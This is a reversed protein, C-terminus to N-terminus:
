GEETIVECLCSAFCRGTNLCVLNGLEIKEVFAESIEDFRLGITTRIKDGAKIIRGNIDYPISHPPEGVLSYLAKLKREFEKWESTKYKQIHSVDVFIKDKNIPHNIIQESIADYFSDDLNPM